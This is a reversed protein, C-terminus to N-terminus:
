LMLARVAEDAASEMDWKGSREFRREFDSSVHRAMAMREDEISRPFIDLIMERFFYGSVLVALLSALLVSGIRQPSKIM